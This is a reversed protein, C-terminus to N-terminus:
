NWWEPTPLPPSARPNLPLSEEIKAKPLARSKKTPTNVIRPASKRQRYNPCDIVLGKLGRLGALANKFYLDGGLTDNWSIYLHRLGKAMKLAELARIWLWQSQDPRSSRGIHMELDRLYTINVRGLTRIWQMFYEVQDVIFSNAGYFIPSAEYNITKCTRLLPPVGTTRHTHYPSIWLYNPEVLVPEYIKNRIEIPLSLFGVSSGTLAMICSGQTLQIRDFSWLAPIYKRSSGRASVPGSRLETHAACWSIWIFLRFFWESIRSILCLCSPSCATTVSIMHSFAQRSPFILSLYCDHSTAAWQSSTPTSSSSPRFSHHFTTTLKFVIRIRICRSLTTM